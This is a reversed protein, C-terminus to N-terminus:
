SSRGGSPASGRAGSGASARDRSRGRRRSRARRRRAARRRRRVGSSRRRHDQDRGAALHLDREGRGVQEFGSPIAARTTLMGHSSWKARAARLLVAVRHQRGLTCPARRPRPPRSTRSAGSPRRGRRPSRSACSRRRRRRPPHEILCKPMVASCTASAARAHRELACLRVSLVSRILVRASTFGFSFASVSAPTLTQSSWSPRESTAPPSSLRM